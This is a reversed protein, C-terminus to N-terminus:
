REVPVDLEVISDARAAVTWRHTVFLTTRGLLVPALADLVRKETAEDLDSTAEDLVLIPADRLVARAIALRQREGGSLRAGDEGIRSDYGDPLAEIVEDICAVRCAWRMREESLGADAVALNDRVTADFLDVRQPVLSIAARVDDAALSRLERGGLSITGEEYARFRLLLNVFTSKGAGSPGVLALSRGAPIELDLGALAAPEDPGYRYSLGRVVLDSREPMTLPEATDVVEPTADVLEGIREAAARSADLQQVSQSLPLVAEFAAIAALIILALYVGDLRGSTVLPIAVVLLALGTSSAVLSGLGAGLGRHLAIRELAADHTRALGQLRRPQRSATDFVVLDAIGSVTDIIGADLAARASVVRRSATSALRRTVIPLLLGAVALGAVGLLALLPDFAGLLVATLVAVLVAVFPPVAVRVYLDELSDVDRVIRAMLDGSHRRDLRAPALPEIARFFWVRLGALVDLSARHTVVRELYRFAARSIALVRVATIALAVEAVNTVSAARSILWASAAMLGVASGIALFGLLAGVVIWRGYPRLLTLM